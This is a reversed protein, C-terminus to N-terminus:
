RFDVDIESRGACNGLQWRWAHNQSAAKMEGKEYSSINLPLVTLKPKAVVGIIDIM